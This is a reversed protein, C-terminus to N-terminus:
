PEFLPQKHFNIEAGSITADFFIIKKNKLPKCSAISNLSLM